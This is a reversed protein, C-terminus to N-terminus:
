SFDDTIGLADALADDSATLREFCALNAGLRECLLIAAREAIHAPEPGHGLIRELSTVGHERIGCPVIVDFGDMATRANFAFGHMTVWRSIRVGVAGLKAARRAEVQGPWHTPDTLDVWIGPYRDIIGTDVGHDRALGTMTSLLDHVYRRVDCRDPALDLIPYAVLQGPGHYTVDGGRLTSVVSIGRARLLPETLLLHDAKAGRGLTIVPEHELLLILDGIRGRARASVAREQLSHIAEYPRRGLWAARVSRRSVSTERSRDSPCVVAM